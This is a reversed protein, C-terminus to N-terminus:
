DVPKDLGIMHRIANVDINMTASQEHAHQMVMLEIVNGPMLRIFVFVVVTLLFFTPILLLVRRIVYTRM